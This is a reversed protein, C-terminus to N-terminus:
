FVVECMFNAVTLFTCYTGTTKGVCNCRFCPKIILAMNMIPVVGFVVAPNCRVNRFQNILKIAMYIDINDECYRDEHVEVFIEEFAGILGKEMNSVMGWMVLFVFRNVLNFIIDTCSINSIHQSLLYDPM